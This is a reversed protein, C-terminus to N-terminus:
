GRLVVTARGVAEVLVLGQRDAVIRAVLPDLAPLHLFDDFKLM